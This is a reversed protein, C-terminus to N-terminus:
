AYSVQTHPIGHIWCHREVEALFEHACLIADDRRRILQYYSRFRGLEDTYYVFDILYPTNM